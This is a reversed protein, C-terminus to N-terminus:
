NEEIEVENRNFIVELLPLNGLGIFQLHILQSLEEIDFDLETLEEKEKSLLESNDLVLLESIERGISDFDILKTYDNIFIKLPSQNWKKLEIILKKSSVGISEITGEEVNLEKLEM